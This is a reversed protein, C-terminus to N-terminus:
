HRLPASRRANGRTQPPIADPMDVDESGLVAFHNSVPLPHSIQTTSSIIAWYHGDLKARPTYDPNYSWHQQHRRYAIHVTHAINMQPQWPRQGQITIVHDDLVDHIAINSHLTWAVLQLLHHNTYVGPTRLKRHLESIFAGMNSPRTDKFATRINQENATLFLDTDNKLRNYPYQLGSAKLIASYGCNGDAPVDGCRLGQSLLQSDLHKTRLVWANDSTKTWSEEIQVPNLSASHPITRTRTTNVAQSTQRSGQEGGGTGDEAPNQNNLTPSAPAPTQPREPQQPAVRVKEKDSDTNNESSIPSANDLQQQLQALDLDRDDQNSADRPSTHPPATSATPPALKDQAASRQDGNAEDTQACEVPDISGQRARKREHTDSHHTPPRTPKPGSGHDQYPEIRLHQHTEPLPMHLATETTTTRFEVIATRASTPITRNITGHQQFIKRLTTHDSARM